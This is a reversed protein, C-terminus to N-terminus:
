PATQIEKVTKGNYLINGRLKVAKRLTSYIPSREHLNTLLKKVKEESEQGTIRTEFVIEQFSSDKDTIGYIPRIDCYSRITMEIHAIKPGQAAAFRGYLTQLSMGFSSLFVEQPYSGAAGGKPRLYREDCRIKFEGNEGLLAKSSQLDVMKVEATTTLRAQSPETISVLRKGREELTRKVTAVLEKDEFLAQTLGLTTM